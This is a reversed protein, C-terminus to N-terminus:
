RFRQLSSNDEEYISDVPPRNKKKNLIIFGEDGCSTPPPSVRM